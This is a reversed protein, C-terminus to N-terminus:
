KLSGKNSYNKRLGHVQVVPLVVLLGTNPEALDGVIEETAKVIRDVTEQNEVVTFLTRSYEETSDLIRELSPFLPMDDRMGGILIRGMGSSHLITAGKVGVRGWADLLEEILEPNDLIFLVFFM